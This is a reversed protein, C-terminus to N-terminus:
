ADINLSYATLGMTFAAFALLNYKRNKQNYEVARREKEENTLDDANEGEKLAIYLNVLRDTLVPREMQKFKDEIWKDLVANLDVLKLEPLRFQEGESEQLSETNVALTDNFKADFTKKFKILNDFDKLYVDSKKNANM